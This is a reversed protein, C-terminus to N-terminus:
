SIIAQTTVVAGVEVLMVLKVNLVVPVVVGRVVIEFALNHYVFEQGTIKESQADPLVTCYPAVTAAGLPTKVKVALVASVVPHM